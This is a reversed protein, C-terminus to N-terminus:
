FFNRLPVLMWGIVKDLWHRNKWLQYNFPETNELTKNRYKILLDLIQQDKGYLMIEHMYLFSRYDFNASGVCFIQDDVIMLKSHLNSPYYYLIEINWKYLQGLYRNRLFDFLIVDSHKPLVLEVKIGRNIADALAKRFRYGVLFYPTEIYINQKAHRIMYILKRLVKQRYLSPVDRIIEFGRFHIVRNFIKKNYTHRRHNRFNIHFVHAFPIALDGKIRLTLERWPLSYQTINASSIYLINDDIVFLKRHNRLHAKSLLYRSLQIPSFIRVSGGNDIIPLFFQISQGTGWADVLLKVDIGRAAAKALEEVFTQGLNDKSIRYVEIYVNRKSNRIDELLSAYFHENQDYLKVDEITM